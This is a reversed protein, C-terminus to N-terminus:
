KKKTDPPVLRQREDPPLQQYESWQERLKDRKEPPTKAISRYTERAQRRQEPTLKAWAQMRRQVREQQDAQMKPYRKAIGIWKRRREPELSEWDAKLPALIM